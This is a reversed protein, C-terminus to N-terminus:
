VIVQPLCKEFNLIAKPKKQNHFMFLVYVFINSPKIVVQTKHFSVDM